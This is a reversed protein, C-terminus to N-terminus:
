EFALPDMAISSQKQLHHLINQWQAIVHCGEQAIWKQM